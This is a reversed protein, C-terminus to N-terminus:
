EEEGLHRAIERKIWAIPNTILEDRLHIGPLWVDADECGLCERMWKEDAFRPFWVGETRPELMYQFHLGLNRTVCPNAVSAMIESLVIPSSQLDYSVLTGITQSANALNFYPTILVPRRESLAMAFAALAAGRKILDTPGIGMSSSVGVWVRVPARDSEEDAIRWMSEPEGSLFAPVNPFFGAVSPQWTRRLSPIEEQFRDILAQAEAVLSADGNHLAEFGAKIEDPWDFSRKSIGNTPRGVEEIGAEFASVSYYHERKYTIGNRREISMATGESSILEALLM